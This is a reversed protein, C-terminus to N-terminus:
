RGKKAILIFPDSTVTADNSFKELIAQKDSESFDEIFPYSSVISVIENASEYKVSFEYTKLRLISLGSEISAKVYYDPPRQRIIRNPFMTAVEKMGKGIGYERFIFMGNNKLVRSVEGCNIRTVNKAVVIDFFNNPFPLRDASGYVLKASNGLKESALELMFQSNDLGFVELSLGPNSALIRGLVFGNGTGVDLVKDGQKLYSSIIPFFEGNVDVPLEVNMSAVDERIKLIEKDYKM